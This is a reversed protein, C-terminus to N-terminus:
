ALFVYPPTFTYIWANKFEASSPPSHDAESGPRKVGLFLAGQVWHIHPQTPGLAPRSVAPIGVEMMRNDLGCDTAIGVLRERSKYIKYNFNICKTERTSSIAWPTSVVNIFVNFTPKFLNVTM